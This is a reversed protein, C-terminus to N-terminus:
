VLDFVIANMGGAQEISEDSYFEHYIKEAEELTKVGPLANPVGEKTLYERLTNYHRIETVRVPIKRKNNFFSVEQGIWKAHKEKPGRRGEIKKEGIQIYYLWPDKIHLTITDYGGTKASSTMYIILYVFLCLAVIVVIFLLLEIKM